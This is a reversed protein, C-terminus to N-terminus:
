NTWCGCRTCSVPSEVVHPLCWTYKYVNDKIQQYVIKSDVLRVAVDTWPYKEGPGCFGDLIPYALKKAEAVNHAYILCAGESPGSSRSFGMYTKLRDSPLKHM